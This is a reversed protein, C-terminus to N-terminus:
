SLYTAAFDPAFVAGSALTLSNLYGGCNKGTCEKHKYNPDSVGHHLSWLDNPSESCKHSSTPDSSSNHKIVTTSKGETVNQVETRHCHRALGDLANPIGAQFLLFFLAESSELAKFSLSLGTTPSSLSVSKKLKEYDNNQSSLAEHVKNVVNWPAWIDQLRDRLKAFDELIERNNFVQNCFHWYFGFLDGLTKPTRKTLCVLKECLQRFPDISTGSFIRLVMYIAYGSGADSRLTESTFEMPVHCMFRKPHNGYHNPYNPSRSPVPDSTSHRFGELRDTLFAQLPSNSSKGCEDYNKCDNSNNHQCKSKKCGSIIPCIWSKVPEGKGNPQIKKGYRCNQWGGNVSGSICMQVLFSLQFQVAYVYDCLARFLDVGSPYSLGLKNSFLGHLWPEKATGASDGQILGLINPCLICAPILHGSLDNATLTVHSNKTGSVVVALKNPLTSKFHGLLSGFQSTITLGSLWYLMQRITVPPPPEGNTNIDQRQKCHFYTAACHILASITHGNFTSPLASTDNLKSQLTKLFKPFSEETTTNLETLKSSVSKMVTEGSNLNFQNIDFGMAAMFYRLEYGKSGQGFTWSAWAGKDRCQWYLYTIGYYYLPICSLFIMACKPKDQSGDWTASPLYYSTYLPKQLERRFGNTANHLASILAITKPPPKIGKLVNPGLHANYLKVQAMGNEIGGRELSFPKGKMDAFKKILTTINTCLENVIENISKRHNNFKFGGSISKVSSDEAVAQLVKGLYESVPTAFDTINTKSQLKTVNKLQTVVDKIQDGNRQNLGKMHNVATTFNKGGSGGGLAPRLESDLNVGRLSVDRVGKNASNVLSQIMEIWFGLLGEQLRELPDNSAGIGKNSHKIIGGSPDYGIFQRLGEALKGIIPGLTGPTSLKVLAKSADGSGGENLKDAAYKIAVKFDPLETIARALDQSKDSGGDKGTVRLIWDIAEKLNSSCDINFLYAAAAGGGLGLTTLTGAVPGAPSPPTDPTEPQSSATDPLNTSIFSDIQDTLEHYHYGFYTRFKQLAYKIKSLTDDVQRVNRKTFQENIHEKALLYCNTLPCSIPKKPGKTELEQLFSYYSTYSSASYAQSLENFGYHGTLINAVQAGEIDKLQSPTFGMCSMFHSLGWNSIANLHNHAWSAGYSIKCKWYIFSLGYFAMIAACLFIHALEKDNENTEGRDDQYKSTYGQNNVIGKGGLFGALGNALNGILGELQVEM